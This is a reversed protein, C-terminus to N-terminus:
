QLIPQILLNHVKSGDSLTEEQLTFRLAEWGLPRIYITEPREASTEILSSIADAIEAANTCDRHAIYEM